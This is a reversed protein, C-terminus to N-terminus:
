TRRSFLSCFSLLRFSDDDERLLHRLLLVLSWSSNSATDLVRSTVVSPRARLSISCLNAAMCVERLATSFEMELNSFRMSSQLITSSSAQWSWDPEPSSAVLTLITSWSSHPLGSYEPGWISASVSSLGGYAEPPFVM